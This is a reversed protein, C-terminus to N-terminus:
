LKTKELIDCIQTKILQTKVENLEFYKLIERAIEENVWANYLLTNSLRWM